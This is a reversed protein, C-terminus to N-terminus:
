MIEDMIRSLIRMCRSSQIINEGMGGSSGREMLWVNSWAIIGSQGKELTEFAFLGHILLGKSM